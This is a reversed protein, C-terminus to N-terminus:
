VLAKPDSCSLKWVVAHTREGGGDDSTDSLHEVKKEYSGDKKGLKNLFSRVRSSHCSNATTSSLKSRSLGGYM